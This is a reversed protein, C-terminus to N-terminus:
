NDFHASTLMREVAAQAQQTNSGTLCATMEITSDPSNLIQSAIVADVSLNGGLAACSPDAPTTAVRAPHGDITDRVGPYRTIGIGPKGARQWRVLVGGPRIRELPQGCTQTISQADRTTRCPNHLPETSLYTILVTFSSVVSYTSRRWATPYHFSVGNGHFVSVDVKDPAVAPAPTAESRSLLTPTLVVAVAAVTALVAGAVARHRRRRRVGTAVAEFLTIGAPVEPPLHRLAEAVETEFEDTRM